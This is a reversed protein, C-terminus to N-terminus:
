PLFNSNVYYPNETLLNPFYISIESADISQNYESFPYGVGSMSKLTGDENYRFSYLEEGIENGIEEFIYKRSFIIDLEGNANFEHVCIIKSNLFLYKGFGKQVGNEYNISTKIKYDNLVEVTTIVLNNTGLESFISDLSETADKYYEIEDLVNNEFYEIKKPNNNILYVKQYENVLSLQQNTISEGFNNRYVITTSM